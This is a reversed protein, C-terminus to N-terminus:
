LLVVEVTEDASLGTNVLSDASWSDVNGPNAYSQRSVEVLDNPKLVVVQLSQIFAGLRFLFRSFKIRNNM